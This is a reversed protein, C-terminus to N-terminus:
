LELQMQYQGSYGKARCLDVFKQPTTVGYKLDEAILAEIDRYMWVVFRKHHCGYNEIMEEYEDKVLPRKVIVDWINFLASRRGFPIQDIFYGIYTNKNSHINYLCYLVEMDEKKVHKRVLSKEDETLQIKRDKRYIKTLADM